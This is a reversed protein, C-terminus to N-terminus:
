NEELLLSIRTRSSDAPGSYASELMKVKYEIHLTKNRDLMVNKTPVQRMTDMQDRLKLAVIELVDALDKKGEALFSRIADSDLDVTVVVEAHGPLHSQNSM